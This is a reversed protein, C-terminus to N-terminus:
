HKRSLAIEIGALIARGPMRIGLLEAYGTNYLNTGQIYPRVIGKDRSASFDLTTYPSLGVRQTVAFSPRLAISGPAHLNWEVHARNVPYQFMLQAQQNSTTNQAGFIATWGVLLLQDGNLRAQVSTEVGTLRVMALNEAQWPQTPSARLYNIANSQRSYFATASAAVRGSPYWDVGGDFNWATEPKLTPNSITTPDNYYLDTYTPLRFGYGASGRLKWKQQLLMSASFSPASVIRGGSLFEERLGLSFSARGRHLDADAYLATRNRGHQGLSNSHISDTNEEAGIFLKGAGGLSVTHRVAGQWSDDIHHNNYYAPDDRLLVYIDAHRRYAVSASTAANFAQTLAIFWGKTREWSNYDGYFQNAGYSRDSGALLLDSEGMFSTARGEVSASESRYDRGPIFGTSFDRQGAAVVSNHQNALAGIFSQNNGGFSGGGARLRLSSEQPKWTTVNVVGSLADAGYLTSGSGHLVAVGALAPLPVPIDLNFHSAQADNMRLGNLLVLTQEFTGGRISIDSQVGMTGRQQIDVSADSRLADAIDQFALSRSQTEIVEVSRSTQGVTVPEADGVVTITDQVSPPPESQQQAAAVSSAVCAVVCCCLSVIRFSSLM